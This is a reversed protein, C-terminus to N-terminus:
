ARREFMKHGRVCLSLGYQEFTVVDEPLALFSKGRAINCAAHAEELDKESFNGLQFQGLVSLYKTAADYMAHYADHTKPVIQGLDAKIEEISGGVEKALRAKLEETSQATASSYVALAVATLFTMIVQVLLLYDKVELHAQQVITSVTSVIILIGLSIVVFSLLYALWKV